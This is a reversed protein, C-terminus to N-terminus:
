MAESKCVLFCHSEKSASVPCRERETERERERCGLKRRVYLSPHSQYPKQKRAPNILQTQFLYQLCSTTKLKCGEIVDQPLSSSTLGVKADAGFLAAFPSRKIETHHSSNKQFQVFKLSDLLGTGHTM